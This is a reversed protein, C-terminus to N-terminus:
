AEDMPEHGAMTSINCGYKEFKQDVHQKVEDKTAELEAKLQETTACKDLKVMMANLQEQIASTIANLQEQIASSAVEVANVTVSTSTTISPSNTHTMPSNNRIAQARTPTSPMTLTQQNTTSMIDHITVVR